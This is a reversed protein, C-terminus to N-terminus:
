FGGRQQNTLNDYIEQLTEVRCLRNSGNTGGTDSPPYLGFQEDPGASVILPTWFTNVAYFREEFESADAALLTGIEGVPDLPDINLPNSFDSASLNQPVGGSDVPLAPLSTILVSAQRYITTTIATGSTNGDPRLLGTPANYFRLPTGWADVFELLGDGDTDAILAPDIDDINLPAAGFSEGATLILYLLEASETEPDDTLSALLQAESKGSATQMLRWLTGHPDPEMDIMTTSLDADRGGMDNARQPFSMRYLLQRYAVQATEPPLGPFRHTALGRVNYRRLGELRDQLAADLQRILAKTSAIRASEGARGYVVVVTSALFAIIGIVILVEMLTFGGRVRGSRHHPHSTM